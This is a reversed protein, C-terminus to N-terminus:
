CSGDEGAFDPVMHTNGAEWTKHHGAVHSKCSLWKALANGKRLKTIGPGTASNYVKESCFHQRSLCLSRRKFNQQVRKKSGAQRFAQM